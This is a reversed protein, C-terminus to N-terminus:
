MILTSWYKVLHFLIRKEWAPGKGYISIGGERVTKEDPM